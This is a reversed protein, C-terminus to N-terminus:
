TVKLGLKLAEVRVLERIAAVDSRALGEAVSHAISFSDRIPVAVTAIRCLEANVALRLTTKDM